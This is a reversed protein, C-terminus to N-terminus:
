RVEGREELASLELSFGLTRGANAAPSDKGLWIQLGVEASTEAKPSTYLAMGDAFDSATGGNVSVVLGPIDQQGEDYVVRLVMRVAADSSIRVTASEVADGDAPVEGAIPYLETQSTFYATQSDFSLTIPQKEGDGCGAALGLACVAAFTLAALKKNM